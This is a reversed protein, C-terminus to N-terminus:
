YDDENWREGAYSPDFWAPVCDSELERIREEILTREEIHFECRPNGFFSYVEGKCDDPNGICEMM